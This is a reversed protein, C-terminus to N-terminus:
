ANFKVGESIMYCLGVSVADSEDENEFSLDPWIKLVAKQVDKKDAKGSGAVVKKITSPAYSFQLCDQFLYQLSCAVPAFGSSFEM